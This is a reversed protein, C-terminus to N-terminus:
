ERRCAAGDVEALVSSDQSATHSLFEEVNCAGGAASQDTQSGIAAADVGLRAAAEVHRGSWPEQPMRAGDFEGGRFAMDSDAGLLLVAARCVYEVRGNQRARQRAVTAPAQLDVGATKIRVRGTGARRNRGREQDRPQEAVRNIDMDRGSIEFK